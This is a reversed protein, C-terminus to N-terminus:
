RVEGQCGRATHVHRDPCTTCDRGQLGARCPCQGTTSDCYDAVSGAPDCNCPVCGVAPDLADGYYGYDCRALTASEISRFSASLCHHHRLLKSAFYVSFTKM